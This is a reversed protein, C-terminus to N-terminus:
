VRYSARTCRSVHAVRADRSASGRKRNLRSGHTTSDLFLSYIEKRAILEGGGIRPSSDRKRRDSKVKIENGLIYGISALSRVSSIRRITGVHVYAYRTHVRWVKRGRRRAHTRNRTCTKGLIKDQKIKAFSSYRAHKRYRQFFFSNLTLPKLPITAKTYIFLQYVM